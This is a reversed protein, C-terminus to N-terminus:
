FKKYLLKNIIEILQKTLNERSYQLVNSKSPPSIKGEILQLLANKMENVQHHEVVIGAKTQYIIKAADGDKPAIALIPKQLALYEFIKGTLIGKSNPAENIILLLANAQDEKILVDSHPLYDIFEIYQEINLPQISEKVSADVKGILQVKFHTPLKNEKALLYLAQWLVKPNRNPPILGAYTLIFSESNDNMNQQLYKYDDVDFGNTLTYFKESHCNDLLQLEKTLTPSISIVADATQVVKKELYQHKKKACHTLYLDNLFDINTWPDRFDAIWPINPFKNKLHLAILHMSHPPGTSIILDVQHHKLYNSLFRVSPKIWFMKADPIFCNGRIWKSLKEAFSTKSSHEKLFSVTIKEKKSKGTLVKYATYPEFIKTKLVQLNEDPLDKLLSNDIVPMEPNEPTYVICHFNNKALYKVFKLWRQVGSGGAPPWYYTIILLRKM